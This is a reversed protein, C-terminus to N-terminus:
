TSILDQEVSNIVNEIENLLFQLNYDYVLVKEGKESGCRHIIIDRVKVAKHLFDINIRFKEKINNLNKKKFKKNSYWIIEKLEKIEENNISKELLFAELISICNVFIMNYIVNQLENDIKTDLINRLYAINNILNEIPPIEVADIERIEDGSFDIMYDSKGEWEKSVKELEKVLKCIVEISIGRYKEILVAKANYPGGELFIYGYNDVPCVGIPNVFHDYFWNRMIRIQESCPLENILENYM